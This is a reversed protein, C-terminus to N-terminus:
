WTVLLDKHNLWGVERQESLYYWDGQSRMVRLIQGVPVEGVEHYEVAPGARLTAKNQVVAYVQNSVRWCWYTLGFIALEVFLMVFLILKRYFGKKIWVMFILLLYLVMLGFLQWGLWTVRPFYHNVFGLQWLSSVPLGQQEQVAEINSLSRQVEVGRGVKAAQLWAWIAFEIKQEYFYCSGLNYWVAGGKNDISNYLGIAAGYDGQSCLQNAQLFSEQFPNALCLNSILAILLGFKIM